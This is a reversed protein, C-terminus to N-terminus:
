REVGRQRSWPREPIKGPSHDSGIYVAASSVDRSDDEATPELTVEHHGLPVLARLDWELRSKALAGASTKALVTRTELRAGPREGSGVRAVVHVAAQRKRCGRRTDRRLVDVAWRRLTREPPPVPARTAMRTRDLDALVAVNDRTRISGLYSKGVRQGTGDLLSVRHETVTEPPAFEVALQERDVGASDPPTAM